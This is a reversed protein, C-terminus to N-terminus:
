NMPFYRLSEYLMEIKTIYPLDMKDINQTIGRLAQLKINDNSCRKIINKIFEEEHNM